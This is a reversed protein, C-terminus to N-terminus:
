IIDFIDSPSQNTFSISIPNTGAEGTDSQIEKRENSKTINEKNIETNRKLKARYNQIAYM